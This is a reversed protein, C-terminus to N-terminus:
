PCQNQLKEIHSSECKEYNIISSFGFRESFKSTGELSVLAQRALFKEQLWAPYVLGMDCFVVVLRDSGSTGTRQAELDAARTRWHIAQRKQLHGRYEMPRCALFLTTLNSNESRSKM